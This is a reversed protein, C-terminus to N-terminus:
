YEDATPNLSVLFNELSTSLKKHPMRGPKELVIHGTDNEISIVEDGYTCGIFLTIPLKAKIKAFCHGLINEKLQEQDEENWTQILKFNIDEREVCIGNAWFSSYFYKFDEHFTAELASEIDNFINVQNKPKAKWFYTDNEKEIICPSPWHPSFHAVAANHDNLEKFLNTHRILLSELALHVKNM